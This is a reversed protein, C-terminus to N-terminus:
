LNPQNKRPKGHPNRMIPSLVDELKWGRKVRQIILHSPLGTDDSWAKVTQHKGNFPILPSRSTYSRGIKDVGQYSGVGWGLDSAHTRYKRRNRQQDTRSAWELNGPEYGKDNCKRDLTLSPHPKKGVDALFAVFGTIPCLFEDSVTIGRRGYDDYQPHNQRTCRDVANRLAQYEAKFTGKITIRKM